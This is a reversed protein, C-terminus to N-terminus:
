ERMVKYTQYGCIVAVSVIGIVVIWSVWIRLDPQPNHAFVIIRWTRALTVVQIELYFSGRIHLKESWVYHRLWDTALTLEGLKEDTSANYIEVFCKHNPNSESPEWRLLWYETSINFTNTTFNKSGYGGIAPIVSIV